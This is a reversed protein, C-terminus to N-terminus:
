TSITPGFQYTELRGTTIGAATDVLREFTRQRFMDKDKFGIAFARASTHTASSGEIEFDVRALIVVCCRDHRDWPLADFAIGYSGGLWIQDGPILSGASQEPAMLIHDFEEAIAGTASAYEFSEVEARYRVNQAITKGVNTFNVRWQIDMANQNSSADIILPDIKIWARQAAEVLCNQRQMAKTAKSTDRVAELTADLTRKVFWVGLSTVILTLLAVVTSALASTAARQQASLNQEGLAQEQSAKVREYVCEFLATSQRGTCARQADSQAAQSYSAPTQQRRESERGNLLGLCYVLVIAGFIALAGLGAIIVAESRNGRDSGLM